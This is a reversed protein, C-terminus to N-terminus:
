HYIRRNDMVLKYFLGLIELYLIEFSMMKRCRKGSKMLNRKHNPLQLVASINRQGESLFQIELSENRLLQQHGM